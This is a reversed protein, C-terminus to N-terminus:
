LITKLFTGGGNVSAVMIPTDIVCAVGDWSVTTAIHLVM